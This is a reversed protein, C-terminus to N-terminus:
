NKKLCKEYEKYVKSVVEEYFGMVIKDFEEVVKLENKVLSISGLLLCM